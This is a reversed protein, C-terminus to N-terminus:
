EMGRVPISSATTMLEEEEEEEELRTVRRKVTITWRVIV